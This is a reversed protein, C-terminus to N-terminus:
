EYSIGHWRNPFEVSVGNTMDIFKQNLVDYVQTVETSTLDATSEKKFMAKQVLRWSEKFKAQDFPVQVGNKAVVQVFNTYSFGADNLAESMLKCYLEISKRQQSTRSDQVKKVEITYHKSDDVKEVLYAQYLEWDKPCKLDFKM